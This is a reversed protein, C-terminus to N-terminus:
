QKASVNLFSKGRSDQNSKGLSVGVQDAAALLHMPNRSLSADPMFIFGPFFSSAVPVHLLLSQQRFGVTEFPCPHISTSGPAMLWVSVRRLGPFSPFHPIELMADFWRLCIPFPNAMPLPTSFIACCQLYIRSCVESGQEVVTGDKDEEPARGQPHIDM